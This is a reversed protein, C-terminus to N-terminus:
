RGMRVLIRLRKSAYSSANGKFTWDRTQGDSNGIGLDARAGEAWHNIAFITQKAEANHVQMCGYGTVPSGPQDGFDFLGGDAGPVGASNGGGYNNPWFELNGGALETGTVIGPVNSYVNMAAAKQQIRYDADPIGIRSLDDTFADMSVFVAQPEAGARQLELLYAVRDFRGKIEARRDVDYVPPRKLKALDLDCALEMARAEPIQELLDPEGKGFRFGTFPEGEKMSLEALKKTEVDDPPKDRSASVVLAAVSMGKSTGILRFTKLGGAAYTPVPLEAWEWRKPEREAKAHDRGGHTTSLGPLRHEWPAARPDDHGSPRAGM